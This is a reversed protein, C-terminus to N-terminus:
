VGKKRYMMSSVTHLYERVQSEDLDFDEAIKAIYDSEALEAFLQYLPFKTGRLCMAGDLIDPKCSVVNVLRKTLEDDMLNKEKPPCVCMNYRDLKTRIDKCDPCQKDDPFGVRCYCGEVEKHCYFPIWEEM